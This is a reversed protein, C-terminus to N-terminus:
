RARPHAGHVYGPTYRSHGDHLDAHHGGLLARPAGARRARRSWRRASPDRLLAAPHATLGGRRHRGARSCGPHHAVREAAVRAPRAAGLFLAPTASGRASLTPAGARPLRRRRAPRLQRGARHAAQRGQRVAPRGRRRGPRRREAVVAETVRAGTAYLLELLAKDRLEARREGGAAALLAEVDEVSIAKPLRMPSSRRRLERSVDAEIVGEEALFRHLGRVSSLVRAISSTTLPPEARAGLYRVFARSTASPSRRRARSARARRALRRLDRPRPPVLRDHEARARAGRRPAAPVRRRRRVALDDRRRTSGRPRAARGRPM